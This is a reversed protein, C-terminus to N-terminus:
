RARHIGCRGESKSPNRCRGNIGVIQCRAEDSLSDGYFAAPSSRTRADTGRKSPQDGAGPARTGALSRGCISCALDNDVRDRLMMGGCTKCSRRM